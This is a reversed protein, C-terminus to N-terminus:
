EDEIETGLARVREAAIKAMKAEARIPLAEDLEARRELEAALEGAREACGNLRNAATKLIERMQEVVGGEISRLGIGHIPCAWGVLTTADGEIADLRRMGECCPMGGRKIFLPVFMAKSGVRSAVQRGIELMDAECKDMRRNADVLLAEQVDVAASLSEVISDFIELIRERAAMVEIGRMAKDKRKKWEDLGLPEVPELPEVMLVCRFDVSAVGLNVVTLSAIQGIKMAPWDLDLSHALSGDPRMMEVYIDGPAIGLPVEQEDIKAGRLAVKGALQTPLILRRPRVACTAAYSKVVCTAGPAITFMPVPFALLRPETM